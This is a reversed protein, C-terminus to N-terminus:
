QNTERAAADMQALAERCYAELEREKGPENMGLIATFLQRRDHRQRSVEEMKEVIRAYALDKQRVAEEAGAARAEAEAAEEAQQQARGAIYFVVLIALALCLRAPIFGALNTTTVTLFGTSLLAILGFLATIVFLSLWTKNDGKDYLGPFKRKTLGYIAALMAADVVFRTLFNMARGFVSVYEVSNGLGIGTLIVINAAFLLFLNKFLSRPYIILALPIIAFQVGFSLWSIFQFSPDNRDDFVLYIAIVLAVLAACLIYIGRRSLRAKESRLVFALLIWVSAELIITLIDWIM